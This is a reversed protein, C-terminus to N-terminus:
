VRLMTVNTNTLVITVLEHLMSRCRDIILIIKQPCKELVGFGIYRWFFVFLIRLVGVVKFLIYGLM